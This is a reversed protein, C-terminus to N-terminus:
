NNDDKSSNKNKLYVNTLQKPVSLENEKSPKNVQVMAPDSEKDEVPTAVEIPGMATTARAEKKIWEELPGDEEEITTAVAERPEEAAETVPIEAEFAEVSEVVVTKEVAAEVVAAEEEVAETAQRLAEKVVATMTDELTAENARDEDPLSGRDEESNKTSDVVDTERENTLLPTPHSTKNRNIGLTTGLSNVEDEESQSINDIDEETRIEELSAGTDMMEALSQLGM